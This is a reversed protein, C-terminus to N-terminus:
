EYIFSVVLGTSPDGNGTATTTGAYHIATGFKIGVPGYYYHAFSGTACGVFMDPTTTGITASSADFLQVYAAANSPNYISIGMLTGPSGKLTQDTNDVDSDATVGSPVVNRM